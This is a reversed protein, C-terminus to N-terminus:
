KVEVKVPNAFDQWLRDILKPDPEGDGVIYRYKMVYPKGPEIAMDGLMQPAFCAFPEKPHLRVPQPFRFNEPSCLVANFVKKGDVKGWQLVWRARSDNGDKRGKGESTLFQSNPEGDFQRHGRLGMGGYHYKPLLLPSSGATTQTSQLDFMRFRASEGGTAYVDVQWIENLVPKPDPKATLDIFRHTTTFGAAVRGSWIRGFSVFEVTGTKAGMNWFDPKRGEFETKTWPAWVGHHHKHNPPYDDTTAVGAPTTLPHIYGGRAFQPEYGEPLPTKEGRYVLVDSGGVQVVIAGEKQTATAKDPPASALKVLLVNFTRSQGAKLEPVIFCARGDPRIQLPLTNGGDAAALEPYSGASAPDTLFAVVTDVRDIDGAHVTIAGPNGVVDAARLAASFCLCVLVAVGGIANMRQRM